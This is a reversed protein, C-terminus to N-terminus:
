KQLALFTPLKIAPIRGRAKWTHYDGVTCFAKACLDKVSGHQEALRVLLKADETRAVPQRDPKPTVVKVAWASAPLDPRLDEKTVGIAEAIDACAAKSIRGDYIWQRVWQPNVGIAEAFKAPTGHREVMALLAAGEKTQSLRDATKISVSKAM